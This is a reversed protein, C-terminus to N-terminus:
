IKVEPWIEAIRRWQPMGLGVDHDCHVFHPMQEELMDSDDDLIIYSEVEAHADLWMKIEDGRISDRTNIRPTRDIIPYEGQAPWGGERLCGWITTEWDSWYRWTSSVVIKAKSRDVIKHLLRVAIPDMTTLLPEAYAIASRRSNLVGDIDLFIVRM